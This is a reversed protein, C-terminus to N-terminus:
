ATSVALGSDPLSTTPRETASVNLSTLVAQGVITAFSAEAADRGVGIRVLGGVPAMRTADFLYWAQGLYAEFFGHFDPPELEVAYGSVYRAPIGLSRVLAIAVHAFDRCVGARHTLVDCASTSADTSGAVYDIHSHVWDCIADVRSYGSALHGFEKDAFRVLRDAECYRSPNLYPLVEVPLAKHEVEDLQPPEDIEPRLVVSAQYRLRLETPEARLRVSRYGPEGLELWEYATEAPYVVLSEETVTQRDTVAPAVSFVFCSPEGVEYNLDCDVDITTMQRCDDSISRIASM